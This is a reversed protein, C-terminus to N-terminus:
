LNGNTNGYGALRWGGDPGRDAADLDRSTLKGAM